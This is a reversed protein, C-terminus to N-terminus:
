RRLHELVVVALRGAVGGLDGGLQAQADDLGADARQDVAAVQALLAVAVDAGRLDVRDLRRGLGLYEGRPRKGSPLPLEKQPLAGTKREPVPRSGRLNKLRKPRHGVQLKEWYFNVCLKSM